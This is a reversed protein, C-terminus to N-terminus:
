FDEGAEANMAQLVQIHINQFSPLLALYGLGFPFVGFTWSFLFNSLLTVMYATPNYRMHRPPTSRCWYSAYKRKNRLKVFLPLYFTLYIMTFVLEVGVFLNRSHEQNYMAYRLSPPYMMSLLNYHISYGIIVPFYSRKYLTWLGRPESLPVFELPWKTPIVLLTNCIDCYKTFRPNQTITFWKKLCSKHVYQVSGTCVCPSLLPDKKDEEPMYCFRCTAMRTEQYLKSRFKLRM